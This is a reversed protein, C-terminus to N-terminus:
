LDPLPCPSYLPMYHCQPCRAISNRHSCIKGATCSAQGAWTHGKSSSPLAQWYQLAEQKCVMEHVEGQM